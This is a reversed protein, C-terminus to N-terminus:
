TDEATTRNRASVKGTSAASGGSSQQIHFTIVLSGGGSASRDAAM